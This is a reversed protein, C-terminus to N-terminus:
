RCTRVAALAGRDFYSSRRRDTAAMHTQMCRGEIALGRARPSAVTVVTQLLRTVRVLRQKLYLDQCLEVLRAREESRLAGDSAVWLVSRMGWCRVCM